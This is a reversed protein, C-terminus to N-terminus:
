NPAEASKARDQKRNKVTHPSTVRFGLDVKSGKLRKSGNKCFSYLRRYDRYNGNEKRNKKELIGIYLGWIGGLM